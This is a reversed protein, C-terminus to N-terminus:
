AYRRETAQIKLVGEGYGLSTLVEEMLDDTKGHCDVYDHGHQKIIDLVTELFQQPTM